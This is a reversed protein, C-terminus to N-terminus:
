GDQLVDNFVKALKATQARWSYRSVAEDDGEYPIEGDTTLRALWDRLIGAVEEASAAVRGARTHALISAIAGERPAIALIPRRAGLYEPLKGTVVGKASADTSELLLLVSADRQADLSVRHPVEGQVQISPLLEPYSAILGKLYDLRRGYFSISVDDQTLVGENILTRIGEFIPGPDRTRPYIMGTYVLRLRPTHASASFVPAQEDYGNPIVEVHKDHSARLQDALHSSVTVLASARHIARREIRQEIGRLPWPRTWLHNQTWLDRYEAVWPLGLDRSLRSAILHCTSPLASSYIISPREKAAIRQIERYGLVYWLIVEDPFCILRKYLRYLPRLARPVFEFLSRDARRSAGHRLRASGGSVARHLSRDKTRVVRVTEPTKLGGTKTYYGVMPDVTVVLPDFGHERLRATLNLLRLSGMSMMPPYRYAIVLVRPLTM